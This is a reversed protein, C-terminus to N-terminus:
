GSRTSNWQVCSNDPSFCRVRWCNSPIEQRPRFGTARREDCDVNQKCIPSFFPTIIIGMALALFIAQAGIVQAQDKEKAGIHRAVISASGINLSSFIMTITFSLTGALGVAALADTGLRGVMVADIIFVSMHLLNEIAVPISLKFINKNLNKETLDLLPM